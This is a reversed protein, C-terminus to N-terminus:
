LNGFCKREKKKEQQEKCKVNEIERDQFASTREEAMKFRIKLDELSNQIKSKIKKLELIKKQKLLKNEKYLNQVHLTMIMM